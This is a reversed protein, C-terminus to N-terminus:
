GGPTMSSRGSQTTSASLAFYPLTGVWSTPRRGPMCSGMQSYSSHLQTLTTVTLPSNEGSSAPTFDWSNNPPKAAWTCYVRHGPLACVTISTIFMLLTFNANVWGPLVSDPAQLLICPHLSLHPPVPCLHSVPPTCLLAASLPSFFPLPSSPHRAPFHGDALNFPTIYCLTVPLLQPYLPFVHECLGAKNALFPPILSFFVWNLTM